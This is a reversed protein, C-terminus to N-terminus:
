KGRGPQFSGLRAQALEADRFAAPSLQWWVVAAGALQILASMVWVARLSVHAAVFGGALAGLPTLGWALARHSTLVRGLLPSPTFRQRSSQSCVNWVLTTATLFVLVLGVVPPWPPVLAIALQAVVACSQALRMSWSYGLRRVVWDVVFSSAVWGVALCALLGGYGVPGLHLVQTAFLVLMANGASAAFSGLAVTITISRLLPTRVLYRLGEGIDRLPHAPSKVPPPSPIGRVLAFAVVAAAAAGWAPIGAGIGLLVGTAPPVVFQVLGRDIVQLRANAAALRDPGVVDPVLAGSAGDGFVQATTVVFAVVAVVPLSLEHLSGAVALAVVAAILVAYAGALVSTRRVRDIVVGAFLSLLLWPAQGAVTVLSIERPDTTISVALLPIASLVLGEGASGFVAVLQLRGWSGM